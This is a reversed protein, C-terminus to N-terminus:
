RLTMIQLGAAGERYHRLRATKEGAEREKHERQREQLNVAVGVHGGVADVVDVRPSHKGTRQTPVAAAVAAPSVQCIDAGTKKETLAKLSFQSPPLAM